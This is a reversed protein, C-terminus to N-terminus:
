AIANSKTDLLNTIGRLSRPIVDRNTLGFCSRLQHQLSEDIYRVHELVKRHCGYLAETKFVIPFLVNSNLLIMVVVSNKKVFIEKVEVRTNEALHTVEPRLLSRQILLKSFASARYELVEPMVPLSIVVCLEEVSKGMFDAIDKIRLKKLVFAEKQIKVVFFGMYAPTDLSVVQM